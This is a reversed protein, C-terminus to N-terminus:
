KYKLKFIDPSKKKERECNSIFKIYDYNKMKDKIPLKQIKIYDDVNFNNMSKLPRIPRNLADIFIKLQEDACIELDSKNKFGVFAFIVVFVAGALYIFKLNKM